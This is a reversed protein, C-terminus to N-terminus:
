IEYLIPNNPHFTLAENITIRYKTRFLWILKTHAQQVRNSFQKHTEDKNRYLQIHTAHYHDQLTKPVNMAIFNTDAPVPKTDFFTRRVRKSFLYGDDYCIRLCQSVIDMFGSRSWSMITWSLKRRDNCVYTLRLGNRGKGNTTLTIYPPCIWYGIDKLMFVTRGDKMIGMRVVNVGDIQGKKKRYELSSVALTM